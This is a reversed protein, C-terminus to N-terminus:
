RIMKCAQNHSAPLILDIM